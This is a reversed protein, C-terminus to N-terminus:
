GFLYRVLLLLLFLTGRVLGRVLLLRLLLLWRLVVLGLFLGFLPVFLQLVVHGVGLGCDTLVQVLLACGLVLDTM